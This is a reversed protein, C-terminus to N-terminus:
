DQPLTAQNKGSPDQPSSCLTPYFPLGSVLPLSLGLLSLPRLGTWGWVQHEESCASGSCFLDPPRLELGETGRGKLWMPHQGCPM